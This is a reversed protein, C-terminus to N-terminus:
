FLFASIQGLSSRRMSLLAVLSTNRPAVQTFIRQWKLIKLSARLILRRSAPIRLTIVIGECVIKRRLSDIPVDHNDRGKSLEVNAKAAQMWRRHPARRVSRSLSAKRFSSSYADLSAGWARVHRKSDIEFARGGEVFYIRLRNNGAEYKEIYKFCVHVCGGRSLCVDREIKLPNRLQRM